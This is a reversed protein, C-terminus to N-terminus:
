RDPRTAPTRVPLSTHRDISVAAALSSGRLSLSLSTDSGFRSPDPRANSCIQICSRARSRSTELEAESASEAAITTQVASLALFLLAPISNVAVRM